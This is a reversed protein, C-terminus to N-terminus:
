TRLLIVCTSDAQAFSKVLADKEKFLILGQPLASPPADPEPKIALVTVKGFQQYIANAEEGLTAILASQTMDMDRLLASIEDLEGKVALELGEAELKEIIERVGLMTGHAITVKIMNKM